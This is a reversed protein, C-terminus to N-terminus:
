PFVRTTACRLARSANYGDAIRPRSCGNLFTAGMILCWIFPISM